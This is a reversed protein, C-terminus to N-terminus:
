MKLDSTKKARTIESLDVVSSRERYSNLYSAFTTMPIAMYFEQVGEAATKLRVFTETEKRGTHPEFFDMQAESFTLLKFQRDEARL